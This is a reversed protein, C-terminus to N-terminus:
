ILAQGAAGEPMKALAYAAFWRGSAHPDALVAALHPIAKRAGQSTAWWPEWAHLAQLAALRVEEQPDTLTRLVAEVAREDRFAALAKVASARVLWDQDGLAALLEPFAAPESQCGLAELAARRVEWQPSKLLNRLATLVEAKEGHGLAQVVCLHM